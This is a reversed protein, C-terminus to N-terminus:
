YFKARNDKIKAAKRLAMTPSRYAMMQKAQMELMKRQEEIGAVELPTATVNDVRIVYVGAQGELPEPVVKGKNAPNFTAGLVCGEFGLSSNSRGNFRLSDAVQVQQGFATAAAELTTVKGIKQKIQAAKKENRLVPEVVSRARNVSMLGAENIETVLAVVYADGVREPQLVDGRDADFIAKVFQRSTGLGNINYDNPRIDAAVLKNIGKPRLNKEINENFSKADRSDGAFLSAANQANNDTEASPVISKAFYDIKYHPQQGKQDLIEIYHYGFETKVVKREGVKGEFVFDNFAKVMQGQPFYDTNGISLLGGKEASGKDDSYKVALSDFRAGGKIAAEISDIRKKATSDDLTVQGTQPNNTQILIHRAKASDPMVKTDILKALAYSSGDIYPGYVQGPALNFISDKAPVQIQSQGLYGDYLQITSGNRSLFAAVDNTTAFESKLDEVTKRIAASDASSPAANFSVYSISRTEEEQKFDKKHESIYNKIEDDSVKVTSDSITTYPVSVYSIKGLLSNDSNQKEIMWKPYYNSNGLLSTYKEALRQLELNALYQNMQAKQEATGSKRLNNFYQQAAQLNFAGTNPDTFGQKIDAPPNAGFLIDNLEKKGISMGLKEFEEEMLAQEIEQNWVNEIAQFRTEGGAYGQRQMYDEQSKVKQEFDQVEIKKGNISGLTTSNGGFLSTRSAFADMMIFGLLSLAIAVVAWRAYKDRISQIVSM